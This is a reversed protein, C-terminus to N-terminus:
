KLKDFVKFKKWYINIAKDLEVSNLKTSKKIGYTDIFLNSMVSTRKSPSNLYMKLNSKVSDESSYVSLYSMFMQELSTAMNTHCPICNYDYINKAEITSLFVSIYIIKNVM